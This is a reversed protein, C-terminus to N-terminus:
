KDVLLKMLYSEVICSLCSRSMWIVSGLLAVFSIM